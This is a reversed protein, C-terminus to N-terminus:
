ADSTSQADRPGTQAPGSPQAPVTVSYDSGDPLPLSFSGDHDFPPAIGNIRLVLGM